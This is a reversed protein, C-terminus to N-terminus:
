STEEPLNKRLCGAIVLAVGSVALAEFVAINASKSSFVIPLHVIWFWLFVMIGSLFAAMQSFRNIFLGIGATILAIGTLWTWFIANGPFWVPILSAVFAKYIFHQLGTIIFFIGLSLRGGVIFKQNSNFFRLLSSGQGSGMKPFTSAVALAGGSLTLAKGIHTWEGSLIPSTIVVPILRLLAWGFILVGACVLALRAKKQFITALGVVIFIVGTLYAWVLKGPIIEPWEPARGTIFDEFIFHEIGLGCLAIAFFLRGIMVLKRM